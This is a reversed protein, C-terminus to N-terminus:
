PLDPVVGPYLQAVEATSLTRDFIAVEDLVGVLARGAGSWRGM